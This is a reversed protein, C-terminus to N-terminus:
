VKGTPISHKRAMNAAEEVKVGNILLSTRSVAKQRYCEVIATNRGTSYGFDDATIMLKRSCKMDMSCVGERM